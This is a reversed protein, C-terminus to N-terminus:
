VMERLKALVAKAVEDWFPKHRAYEIDREKQSYSYDHENVIVRAMEEVPISDIFAKILERCERGTLGHQQAIPHNIVSEINDSM